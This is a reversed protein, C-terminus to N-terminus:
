AKAKMAMTQSSLYELGGRLSHTWIKELEPSWKPDFQKLTKLLSDSWYPYMSPEVGLWTHNLGVFNLVLKGNEERRGFQLLAVIETLMLAKRKDCDIPSLLASISAHSMFFTEYLHDLFAPDLGVRALSLEPETTLTGAEQAAVWQVAVAYGWLRMTARTVTGLSAENQHSVLAVDEMNGKIKETTGSQEETAAAIQSMQDTVQNVSQIIRNLSESSQRALAMANTAEQTGKEMVGVASQTEEQMDHIMDTIEKTSKTTREALKRVEDAVVAFGRGQEGARAAEIAANLALLNTQEAIDDIMKTVAGIQDSHEALSVVKQQSDEVIEALRTMGTTTNSVVEDVKTAESDAEKTLRAANQANHAVRNVMSSMEATASAVTRAEQTQHHINASVPAVLSMVMSALNAVNQSAREMQRNVKQLRDLLSNYSQALAGVEDQSKVEIRRDMHSNEGISEITRQLLQIPRTTRLAFFWGLGVSFMLMIGTIWLTSALIQHNLTEAPSFAEAEDIESMIVWHLGTINLPTYASLVPVDRYDPFIHFGTEGALAAKTGQTQVSQLGISTNKATILDTIHAPLGGARIAALYNPKDELLFRSQNRMTYDPGILYTEGSDGLGVEKWDEQNTMISNIRDIPMQFILVGVKTSGDYIPSAIFAASDEYSPPYPAFDGLAVTQPNDSANAERFVQGIGTEAYPGDILSTSYDLEKFVSYVIDGSEPDVLFIDYYGFKKLFDRIHPHYRGHLQSYTTGDQSLGLEDKSGLPHPNAKIYHYQLATSANDLQTFFSLAKSEQHPNRRVYEESFDKKYYTALSSKWSNLDQSSPKIEKRFNKFAAKFNKMAEIIMRDNSFTLVQDRITQFYAEIQNKKMERISILQNKAQEELAVRAEKNAQWTIISGAIMVPLIALLISGVILKTKLKM